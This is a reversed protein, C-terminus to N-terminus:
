HLASLFRAAKQWDSLTMPHGGDRELLALRHSADLAHWRPLLAQMAHRAGQPNAWADDQAQLICLGRPALAAMLVMSADMDILTKQLGPQGARSGLWHPYRAALGALSEAGPGAHQLSVAGAVGSNHTITAAIRIDSAGALLAAKGGRSHGIVGLRQTDTRQMTELVDVCRQMGWAWASIAGFEAKPWHEFVPGCRKADPPDFALETRNFWALAVNERNVTLAAAEHVCHPWGGDPSLLVPCCLDGAPWQVTLTWTVWASDGPRVQWLELACDPRELRHMLRAQAPTTTPVVGGFLGEIARALM